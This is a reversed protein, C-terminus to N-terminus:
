REVESQFTAELLYSWTGPLMNTIGPSSPSAKKEISSDQFDENFAIDIGRKAVCAKVKDVYEEVPENTESPELDPIPFQGNENKPITPSPKM